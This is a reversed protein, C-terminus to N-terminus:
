VRFWGLGRFGSCRFGLVRYRLAHLLTQPEGAKFAADWDVWPRLSHPFPDPNYPSSYPVKPIEVGM